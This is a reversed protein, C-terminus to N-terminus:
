QKSKTRARWAEGDSCVMRAWEAPPLNLSTQYRHTAEMLLDYTRTDVLANSMAWSLEQGGGGERLNTQAQVLLLQAQDTEGRFYAAMGLGLQVTGVGLRDGVDAMM